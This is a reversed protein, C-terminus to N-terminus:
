ILREPYTEERPRRPQQVRLAQQAKLVRRRRPRLRRRQLRWKRRRLQRAQRPSQEMQRLVGERNLRYKITSRQDIPSQSDSQRALILSDSFISFKCAPVTASPRIPLDWGVGGTQTSAPASTSGAAGSMGSYFPQESYDILFLGLGVVHKVHPM